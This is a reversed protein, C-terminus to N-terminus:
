KEGLKWVNGSKIVKLPPVNKDKLKVTVAGVEADGVFTYSIEAMSYEGFTQDFGRKYKELMAKASEANLGFRESMPKDWCQQFLDTDSTKVARFLAAVPLAQEIVSADTKETNKAAVEAPKTAPSESQAFNAATSAILITLITISLKTKMSTYTQSGMMPSM